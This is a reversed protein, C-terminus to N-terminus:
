DEKVEFLETDINLGKLYEIGSLDKYTEAYFVKIIGSNAILKACMRCPSTTIYMTSGKLSIGEKACNSIINQEAHITFDNTVLKKTFNVSRVDGGELHTALMKNCKRCHAIRVKGLYEASPTLPALESLGDFKDSSNGCYNCEYVTDECNNRAGSVSGNYGTDLIHGNREVVAGVKRRKCYSEEAWVFATKMMVKKYKDRIYDNYESM